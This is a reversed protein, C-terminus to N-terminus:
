LPRLFQLPNVPEGNRRLEVTVLPQGPGTVGVPSGAVVQEGVATDLQALGTM